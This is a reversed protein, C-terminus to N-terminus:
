FRDYAIDDELDYAMDYFEIVQADETAEFRHACNPLITVRQGTQVQVTKKEQSDLDVLLIQLTGSIVYFLEEKKQHYHGGRYLGDGRKLSFYTLHRFPKDDVILAIEGRKQILRKEKLFAETFPLTEVLFKEM